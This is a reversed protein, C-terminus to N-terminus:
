EVPGPDLGAQRLLEAVDVLPEEAFVKPWPPEPGGFEWVRLYFRSEHEAWDVYYGECILGEIEPEIRALPVSKAGVMENGCYHVLRCGSVTHGSSWVRFDKLKSQLKARFTDDLCVVEM